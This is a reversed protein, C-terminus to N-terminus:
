KYTIRKQTELVISFLAIDVGPIAIPQLGYTWLAITGIPPLASNSVTAPMAQTVFKPVTFQGASIRESCTFSGSLSVNGTQNFSTGTINVYSDPDGGSWTVTLGQSRDVNPGISDINDFSFAPSPLKLSSTFPGIDAGGGGNDATVAGPILFLKSNDPPLGPIAFSSGLGAAYAGDKTKKLQKATGAANVLNIADGVDLVRPPNPAPGTPPPITVPETPIVSRFTQLLCTGPDLNNSLTSFAYQSVRVTVPNPVDYQIFNATGIETGISTVQGNTSDRQTTRLLNIYGTTATGSLTVKDGFDATNLDICPGGGASISIWVFNSVYSGIQVVVPVNCGTIGDPVVFQIVDWAAIGTPVPFAPLGDPLGPFTGRGASVVTAPQTGVFVQISANSVDAAGSQTEDSTIAGLGTGHLMVTQGPQAITGPQSQYNLNTAGDGAVNFAAAAQTGSYYDISFAGFAATVVTIPATATAGSNNITVTGTGLPTNSPLIAGVEFSSTYVLIADVTTDAIQVQVTVGGLGDTPLPFSAQQLQDSGLGSGTIAFLAGQAIGYSPFGSPIRGAANVVDRIVPQASAAALAVFALVISRRLTNM